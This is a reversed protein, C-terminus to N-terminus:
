AMLLCVNLGMTKARLACAIAAAKPKLNSPSRFFFLYFYFLEFFLFILNFVVVVSFLIFMGVSGLNSGRHRVTECTVGDYVFLIHSGQEAYAIDRYTIDSTM